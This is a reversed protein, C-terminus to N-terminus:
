HKYNYEYKELINRDGDRIYELRGYADYEYHVVRGSPDTASTVGVLPKYTYGTVLATAGNNTLSSANRLSTFASTLTADSPSTDALTNITSETLVTKVQEFTANAILAVPHQYEYGWLYVTHTGERDVTERINGSSDYSLINVDPHNLDYYASNPTIGNFAGYSGSALPETLNLRYAKSPLYKGNEGIYTRLGGATAKGDTLEVTEVPYDLMNRGVMTQYIGTNIDYPYRTRLVVSRGRSDTTQRETLQYKDNYDYNTLTVINGEPFYDTTTKSDLYWHESVMDYFRPFFQNVIATGNATPLGTGIADEWYYLIQLIFMGLGKTIVQRNHNSYEFNERRVSEGQNDLYDTRTCLGNDGHFKMPYGPWFVGDDPMENAFCNFRKKVSGKADSVTVEPYGVIYGEGLSGNNLNGSGLVAFQEGQGDDVTWIRSHSIAFQPDLFGYEDDPLNNRTYYYLLPNILTGPAYTYAKEDVTHGYEDKSTVRAIRLGGGNVEPDPNEPLVPVLYSLAVQQTYSRHEDINFHVYYTGASLVTETRQYWEFDDMNEELADPCGLSFTADTQINRMRVDFYSLDLNQLDGTSFLHDVTVLAREPIVITREADSQEKSLQITTRAVNETMLYNPLATAGFTNSEFEFGTTGGTPYKIRTLIGAKAYTPDPTRDANGPVYPYLADTLVRPLLGDNPKNNYFGWHDISFSNKDPLPTDDYSFVYPPIRGGSSVVALSDLRLRKRNTGSSNGVSHFYSNNYLYISRITDQGQVIHIARLRTPRNSEVLIDERAGYEFLIKGGGFSIEELLRTQFEQMSTWNPEQNPYLTSRTWAKQAHQLPSKQRYFSSNYRFKVSFGRPSRISDMYYASNVGSVGRINGSTYIANPDDVFSNNSFNTTTENTAFYHTYGKEDVIEWSSGATPTSIKLGSFKLELAPQNYNPIIFKGARGNFNYFFFDPEGDAAGIGVAKYLNLTDLRQQQSGIFLPYNYPSYLPLKHTPQAFGDVGFDDLGRITRSICGGANLAWGLGVQSAEQSVKIGSGHYSISIPVSIDGYQITYVPIDINPVGTYESVPIDGYIGLSSANPSSPFPAPEYLAGQQQARTANAWCVWCLVLVFLKNKM